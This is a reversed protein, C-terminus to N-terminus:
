VRIVFTTRVESTNIRLDILLENARKKEGGGILGYLAECAIYKFDFNGLIRDFIFMSGQAPVQLDWRVRIETPDEGPPFDPHPELIVYLERGYGNYSVLERRSHEWRLLSKPVTIRELGWKYRRIDARYVDARGQHGQGEALGDLDDLLDDWYELPVYLIDRVPNFPRAFVPDQKDRALMAIGEPQAWALAIDRAERNVFMLPMEFHIANRLGRRFQYDLNEVSHTFTYQGGIARWPCWCGKKYFYLAPGFKDPLVERWIQCRLEPPLWSFLPFTSPITLEAQMPHFPLQFTHSVSFLILSINALLSLFFPSTYQLDSIKGDSSGPLVAGVWVIPGLSRQIYPALCTACLTHRESTPQGGTKGPPRRTIPGFEMGSALKLM